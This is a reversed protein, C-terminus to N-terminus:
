PFHADSPAPASTGLCLYSSLESIARERDEVLTQLQPLYKKTNAFKQWAVKLVYKQYKAIDTAEFYKEVADTEFPKEVYQARLAKIFGEAADHSVPCPPVTAEIILMKPAGPMPDGFITNQAKLPLGSELIAQVAETVDRGKSYDWPHEQCGFFARQVAQSGGAVFICPGDPGFSEKYTSTLMPRAHDNSRRCNHYGERSSSRSGVSGVSSSRSRGRNHERHRRERSNPSSMSRSRRSRCGNSSGGSSSGSSSSGSSSSRSRHRDRGRRSRKCRRGRRLDGSPDRQHDNCPSLHLKLIKASPGGSTLWFDEFTIEHLICLDGEEDLYKGEMSRDQLNYGIDRLANNVDEFTSEAELRLRYVSTGDIVKLVPSM